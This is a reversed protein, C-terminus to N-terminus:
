KLSMLILDRASNSSSKSPILSNIAALVRKITSSLILMNSSTLIIMTTIIILINVIVIVIVLDAHKLLHKHHNHRHCHYPRCISTFLHHVVIVDDPGSM